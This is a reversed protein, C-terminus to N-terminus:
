TVHCSTMYSIIYTTDVKMKCSDRISEDSNLFEASAKEVAASLKHKDSTPYLKDTKVLLTGLVSM